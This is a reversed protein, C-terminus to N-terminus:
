GQLAIVLAILLAVVVALMVWRCKQRAQEKVITGKLERGAAEVFHVTASVNEEVTDILDGQSEVLAAMEGYLHRIEQISAEIAVIEGHRERLGALTSQLQSRNALSFMSQSLRLVAQGDLPTGDRAACAEDASGEESGGLAILADLEARTANPAVILYQRELKLRYKERYKLQMGQFAQMARLYKKSFRAHQSTRIRGDSASLEGSACLAATERAARAIQERVRRAGEYTERVAGDVLGAFRAAEEPTGALLAGKHHGEIAAVARSIADLDAQLGEVQDLFADIDSSATSLTASANSASMPLAHASASSASVSPPQPSASSAMMM